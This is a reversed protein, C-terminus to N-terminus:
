RRRRLAKQESTEFAVILTEMLLASRNAELPTFELGVIRCGTFEWRTVARGDEDLLDVAVLQVRRKEGDREARFYNWLESSGTHGRGLKVVPMAGGDLSDEDSTDGGLGFSPLVVESFAVERPRVNGGRPGATALIVRFRHGGLPM